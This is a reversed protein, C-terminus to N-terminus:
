VAEDRVHGGRPSFLVPQGLEQHRLKASSLTGVAGVRNVNGPECLISAVRRSGRAEGGKVTQPILSVNPANEMSNM